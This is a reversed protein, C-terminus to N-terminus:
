VVRLQSESVCGKHEAVSCWLLCWSHWFFSFLMEKVTVLNCFFILLSLVSLVVELLLRMSEMQVEREGPETLIVHGDANYGVGTVEAHYLESTMMSCVTMENKTLTGTKDSCVVNVCGLTEVTPLKKIIAKRKAMRMVGLALTVTVVIPLGEPIAAVALSLLPSLLDIFIVLDCRMLMLLSVGINFMELLPRGQIWGLLMILGIIGFSYLSLQKGLTDMSRQLPTKPAEEAQMMKFIDGFESKEGTNIVVGRGNGYRVLTGMFALNRKSAIGNGAKELPATVKAAPETEGTFSSEDIMLDVASFLRIDAPVRDGVNLIIIDGPVLNKALFTEAQGGRLCHCTPPVLKNLEELSKESRYEQVFAVTVVIIIA